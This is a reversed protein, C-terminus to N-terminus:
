GLMTVDKGLTNDYLVAYKYHEYQKLIIPNGSASTKDDSGLWQMFAETGQDLSDFHLAFKIPNDKQLKGLKGKFTRNDLM